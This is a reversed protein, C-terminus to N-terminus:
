RRRRGVVLTVLSGKPVQAGAGPSQSVVRDPPGSGTVGVRLGLASLLGRAAALPLGVVGPLVITGAGAGGSVLLTVSTGGPVETGAAPSQSVVQGKPASHPVESVAARLGAQALQAGAAQVSQGVVNPVRTTTKTPPPPKPAAPFGIVPAGNLAAAMYDHFIEAPFTGGFVPGGNTYLTRMSVRSKRYGVWVSTSLQPTFGSFFASTYDQASGTKGAVPRGPLAARHGTGNSIVGRLMAVTQASIRSNLVPKCDPKNEIMPKRRDPAMVKVISYPACRVGRNALVGFAAAMDLVSVERAGLVLSCITWNAYGDAGRPPINSIGMRRAVEVASAPGVRVALQAFWTNVSRATAEYMNYVGASSEGANGVSWPGQPGECRRNPITIRPPARIVTAPSIGKELAAVVFFMKFASGPQFGTGGQGTALNVQSEKFDRGGYLAVIRGTTPDVSALAGAPDGNFPEARFRDLRGQVAQAAQSQRDKNLTTYIKLGGQFVKRVRASSGVRGLTDNYRPDNLLQDTVYRVFYPQRNPQKYRHVRLKERKAKAVDKPKAFGLALMRDLVLNRRAVNAKKRTPKYKEPSAITAALSAAESLTLRKVPRNGFYHRAATAVGYVGEGFYAQNLYRELIQDKTMRRELEVAYMAERLKRDITRSNGTIINKILQQSLTSGGQSVRGSRLNAVAARAIGRFDVGHHQYFRDDEIAVVAHRVRKPVEKLTVVQRNEDKVLEALATKGDAAYVVSRQAPDPLAEQLPPFDQLNRVTDKALTGAPVVVPLLAASGVLAVALIIAVMMVLRGGVVTLTRGRPVRAPPATIPADAM